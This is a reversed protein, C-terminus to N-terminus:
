SVIRLGFQQCNAFSVDPPPQISTRMLPASVAPKQLYAHGLFGAVGALLLAGAAVAIERTRKKRAVLGAVSTDAQSRGEAIWKLQLKLDHV